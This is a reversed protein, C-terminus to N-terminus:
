TSRHRVLQARLAAAAKEHHEIMGTLFETTGPVERREIQLQAIMEDNLALLEALMRDSELVSPEPPPTTRAHESFLPM